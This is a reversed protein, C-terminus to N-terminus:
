VPRWHKIGYYLDEITKIPRQKGKVISMMKQQKETDTSMDETFFQYALENAMNSILYDADSHNKYYKVKDPSAKIDKMFFTQNLKHQYNILMKSSFDGKSKAQIVTEGALKGSIMALDTGRRGSIMVAADGTVLLNDSYLKPISKYGGKPILHAMYEVPESGNILRKVMPHEKLRQLMEMPNYGREVVQNLFGGWTLSISDKNTWIGSKGITGASPYGLMALATGENKELLFREEIKEPAMSRVEKVYISVTNSPIEGRLGAKKTLFANVGEALIVVDALIEEGSDLKVGRVPGKGVLRKDYVLDKVLANSYLKAGAEAAKKALWNDFKARLVSFKNYPEKAYTLGTFGMNVISNEEMLWVQDSVIARELPAEQWFAPIIEKTPQVYITGGFMNKSGPFEGRELLAVSIGNQALTLAAASGAPGAGVVVTDFIEKTM